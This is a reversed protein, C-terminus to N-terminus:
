VFSDLVIGESADDYIEDGNEDVNLPDKGNEVYYRFARYFLAKELSQRAKIGRGTKVIIFGIFFYLIVRIFLIVLLVRRTGMM